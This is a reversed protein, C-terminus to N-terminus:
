LTCMYSGLICISTCIYMTVYSTCEYTCVFLNSMCVTCHTCVERMTQAHFDLLKKKSEKNKSQSKSMALSMALDKGTMGDESGNRWDTGTGGGTNYQGYAINERSSNPNNQADGRYTRQSEGQYTRQSEGRYTRQSEPIPELRASSSSNQLHRHDYKRSSDLPQNEQTSSRSTNNVYNIRSSTLSGNNTQYSDSENLTARLSERYKDKRIDDDLFKQKQTQFKAILPYPESPIKWREQEIPAPPPDFNWDNYGARASKEGLIPNRVKRNELTGNLRAYDIRGLV